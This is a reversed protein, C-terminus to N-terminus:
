TRSWTDGQDIVFLMERAFTKAAIALEVLRLQRWCASIKMATSCSSHPQRACCRFPYPSVMACHEFSGALEGPERMYAKDIVIESMIIREHPEHHLFALLEHDGAFVTVPSNGGPHLLEWKM